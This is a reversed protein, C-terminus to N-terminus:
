LTKPVRYEITFTYECDISFKGKGRRAKRIRFLEQLSRPKEGTDFREDLIEELLEADRESALRGVIGIHTAGRVLDKSLGSLYQTGSILSIELSRGERYIKNIAAMGLRHKAINQIEDVIIFVPIDKKLAFENVVYNVLINFIEAEEEDSLRSNASFDIVNIRDPTLKKVFEEKPDKTFLRDSKLKNMLTRLNAITRDRSRLIDEITEGSRPPYENRIVEKLFRDPDRIKKQGWYIDLIRMYNTQTNVYTFKTLDEVELREYSIKGEVVQVNMGNDRSILSLDRTPRFVIRTSPYIMPQLRHRQFQNHHSDVKTMIGEVNPWGFAFDGIKGLLPRKQSYEQLYNELWPYNELLYDYGFNQIIYERFTMLKKVKTKDYKAEIIIILAKRGNLYFYDYIGEALARMISTKGYGSRGLFFIHNAFGPKYPLFQPARSGDDLRIGLYIGFYAQRIDNLGYKALKEPNVRKQLKALFDEPVWWPNTSSEVLGL